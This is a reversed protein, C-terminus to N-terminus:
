LIVVLIHCNSKQGMLVIFFLTWILKIFYTVDEFRSMGKVIRDLVIRILIRQIIRLGVFRLNHKTFFTHAYNSEVILM